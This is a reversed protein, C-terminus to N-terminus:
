LQTNYDLILPKKLVFRQNKDKIKFSFEAEAPLFWENVFCFFPEYVTNLEKYEPLSLGEIHVIFSFGPIPEPLNDFRILQKKIEVRHHLVISLLQQILFINGRIESAHILFPALTKIFPNKENELDFDFCYKLILHIRYTEIEYVERELKLSTNFYQTDFFKFFIQLVNKEDNQKKIEDLLAESIFDSKRDNRKADVTVLRNEPFFLAEPMSHYIGDRSLEVCYEDSNLDKRIEIIDECYNRFFSGLMSVECDPDSELMATILSEAKLDDTPLYRDFYKM